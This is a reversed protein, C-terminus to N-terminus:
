GFACATLQLETVPSRDNVNV